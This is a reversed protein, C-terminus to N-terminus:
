VEPPLLQPLIPFSACGNKLRNNFFNILLHFLDCLSTAEHILALSDKATSRAVPHQM